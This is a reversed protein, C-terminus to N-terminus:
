ELSRLVEEAVKSQTYHLIFDLRSHKTIKAIVSPSVNQKLLHTIFAYRLSHTNFGYRRLCYMKVRKALRVDDVELLWICASAIEDGLAQLEQPAVVLREEERRKKSVRVSLEPKRTLLWSKFARVAESIRLGNRLQLLLVADYCASRRERGTENLKRQLARSLLRYVSGYDLGRDWKM